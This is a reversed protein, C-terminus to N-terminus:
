RVVSYGQQFVRNLLPGSAKFIRDVERQENPSWPGIENKNYMEIGKTVYTSPYQLPHTYEPVSSESPINLKNLVAEAVGQAHAEEVISPKGFTEHAWRLRQGTDRPISLPNFGVAAGAAAGIPANLFTEFKKIENQKLASPSVAHAGEHAVTHVTGRLPDVFGTNKEQPNDNYVVGAGSGWMPNGEIAMVSNAPQLNFKKGSSKNLLEVVSRTQESPQFGSGPVFNFAPTKLGRSNMYAQFLSPDAM